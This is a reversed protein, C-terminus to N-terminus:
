VGRPHEQNTLTPRNPAQCSSKQHRFLHALVFVNPSLAFPQLCLLPDEGSVSSLSSVTVAETSIVTRSHTLFVSLLAVAHCRCSPLLGGVVAVAVVVVVAVAIPLIRTLRRQGPLRRHRLLRQPGPDEPRAPLHHQPHPLHRRNQPQHPHLQRPVPHPARGSDPRLGRPAEQRQQRRQHRPRRHRHRAQEM